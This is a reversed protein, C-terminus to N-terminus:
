QTFPPFSSDHKKTFINYFETLKIELKSEPLTKLNDPYFDCTKILACPTRHLDCWNNFTVQYNPLEKLIKYNNCGECRVKM